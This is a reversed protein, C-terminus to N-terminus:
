QRCDRDSLRLQSCLLTVGLDNWLAELELAENVRDDDWLPAVTGSFAHLPRGPVSISRLLQGIVAEFRATDARGAITIRTLSAAADLLVLRDTRQATAVDRGSAELAALLARRHSPTCVAVAAGGGSLAGALHAAVRLVLDHDDSYFDVIHAGETTAEARISM